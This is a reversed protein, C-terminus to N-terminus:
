QESSSTRARLVGLAVLTAALGALVLGAVGVAGSLQVAGAATARASTISGAVLVSLITGGAAIGVATALESATDVLAAGVSTREAPLGRLVNTGAVVGVVRMGAAVLVLAVLVGGYGLRGLLGFVALGAVVAGASLAAARELGVRTVFPGVFRGGALLVVVQPLLGLAAAAPSWGWALQLQITVLYSLGGVALGTAAKFALGSSVLPLAVLRLDLLPHRASRQRLVFGAGALVATAVAAWPAWPGTGIGTGAGDTGTSGTGVFLTPAVLAAAITVTGLLAGVVDIPDRHLAGPADAPVGLRIGILALVAIPVNALLLVQWPAVALALGGATPGVALGVLGATSVVTLARVRLEDTGFLRFALAMSGPTTMAAAVGMVARVAILQETTTVAATALSAAALLVLGALMVRRRGFRDAIAGFLLMLGGFAVSYAGTVWQLGATSAHLERGLTPLAVNLVSNDLMEFLFVASLGALAIWADRLRRPATDRPASRPTDLVM